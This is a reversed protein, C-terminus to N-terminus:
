KHKTVMTHLGGGFMEQPCSWHGFCNACTGVEGARADWVLRVQMDWSVAPIPHAATIVASRYESLLM